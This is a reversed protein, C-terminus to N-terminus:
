LKECLSFGRVTSDFIRAGRRGTIMFAAASGPSMGDVLWQQLLPITGGGCMYLPVGITAAMLVGFGENKGFLGSVFRFGDSLSSGSRAARQQGTLCMIDGTFMLLASGAREPLSDTRVLVGNNNEYRAGPLPLSAREEEAATVSVTCVTLVVALFAPLVPRCIARLSVHLRM